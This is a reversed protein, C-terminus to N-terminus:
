ESSLVGGEWVVGCVDDLHLVCEGCGSEEGEGGCDWLAAWWVVWATGASADERLEGGASVAAPAVHSGRAGGGGVVAAETAGVDNGGGVAADLARAAAGVLLVLHVLGNSLQASIGARGHGCRWLCRPAGGAATRLPRGCPCGARVPGGDGGGEWPGATWTIMWAPSAVAAPAWEAVAAAWSLVSPAWPARGTRPSVAWPGAPPAGRGAWRACPRAPGVAWPAGGSRPGGPRAASGGGGGGGDGRGSSAVAGDDGGGVVADLDGLDGVAARGGRARSRGGGASSSGALSAETKRRRSGASETDETASEEQLRGNSVDM